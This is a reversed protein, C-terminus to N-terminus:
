YLYLCVRFRLAFIINIPTAEIHVIGAAADVWVGCPGASLM